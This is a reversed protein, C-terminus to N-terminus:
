GPARRLAVIQCRDADGLLLSRTDKSARSSLRPITELPNRAGLQGESLGEAWERGLIELVRHVSKIAKFRLWWSCGGWM